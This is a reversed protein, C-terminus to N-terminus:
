QGKYNMLIVIGDKIMLLLGSGTNKRSSIRQRPLSVRQFKRTGATVRIAPKELLVGKAKARVSLVLLCILGWPVEAGRAPGMSWSNIKKSKGQLLELIRSFGVSASKETVFM